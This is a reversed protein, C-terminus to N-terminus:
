MMVTITTMGLLIQDGNKLLETEEARVRRNNVFIDNTARMPTIRCVMSGEVKLVDLKAHQRSIYRDPAIKLNAMSDASDRGLIHSGQGVPISRGTSKVTLRVEGPNVAIRTKDERPHMPTSPMQPPMPGRNRSHMLNGFPAMYGCVPCRFPRSEMASLNRAKLNFRKNCRPCKVPMEQM